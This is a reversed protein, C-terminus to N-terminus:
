SMIIPFVLEDSINCLL